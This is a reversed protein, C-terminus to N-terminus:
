GKYKFIYVINTVVLIANALFMLKGLNIFISSDFLIGITLFLITALKTGFEAISMKENVMDALMPVQQKGVLPAFKENWVLFPVIKYMHGVVFSSIFGFILFIAFIKVVSENLLFPTLLALLILSAGSVIIDYAYIDLHKRMRKKLIDYLQYTFILITAVILIQVLTFWEFISFISIAIIGALIYNSLKKNFNHSLMFMPILITAIIAMLGGAFGFLVLVIHSHALSVTDFSLNGHILGLSSLLGYTVGLFLIVHIAIIFYAKIEFKPIKKISLFVNIIYLLFSIYLIISGYGLYEFMSPALFSSFFPLVGIVFLALHAYALDNSYLPIELIVSILQYMAGFIVSMMFGLLFLHIFGVAQPDLYHINLFDVRLFVIAAVLYFFVGVIFFSTVLRSPPAFTFNLGGGM